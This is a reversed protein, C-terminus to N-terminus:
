KLSDMLDKLQQIQQDDFQIARPKQTLLNESYVGLDKKGLGVAQELERASVRAAGQSFVVWQESLDSTAVYVQTLIDNCKGALSEIYDDATEDEETFVVLLGYKEFTQRVGPVFQSDFVCVVEIGEFKSYNSLKDLLIDRAEELRNQQFLQRTAKWSGIMNYGDVILLQKKM